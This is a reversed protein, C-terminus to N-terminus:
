GSSKWCNRQQNLIGSISVGIRIAMSTIGNLCIFVPSIHIISCFITPLINICEVNCSAPDERAEKLRENYLGWMKYDDEIPDVYEVLSLQYPRSKASNTGVLNDLSLGLKNSIAAIESFSFAVDGRMRRYVAERELSLLEVLTNTLTAKHPIKERIAGVFKEHILNKSM